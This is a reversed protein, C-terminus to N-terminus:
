PSSSKEVLRQKFLDGVIKEMEQRRAPAVRRPPQKIPPHNGTNIHHKVLNTHRLDLDGSSFVDAYKQILKGLQVAQKKDLCVVSRNWVDELHASFGHTVAMEKPGSGPEKHALEM